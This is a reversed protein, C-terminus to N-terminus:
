VCVAEKNFLGEPEADIVDAIADFPYGSDNLYSLSNDKQCEGCRSTFGFWVKVAEPLGYRNHILTSPDDPHVFDNNVWAGIGTAKLYIDTAVGLCCHQVCGKADSKLRISGQTYDGSRLATTLAARRKQFTNM